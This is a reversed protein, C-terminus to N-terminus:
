RILADAPAYIDNASRPYEMPVDLGRLWESSVDLVIAMKGAPFHSPSHLGNIYQKLTPVSIHARESLEKISINKREMAFRLREGTEMWHRKEINEKINEEM